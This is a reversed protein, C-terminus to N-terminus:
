LQYSVYVEVPARENGMKCQWLPIRQTDKIEFVEFLSKDKKLYQPPTVHAVFKGNESFYDKETPWGWSDAYTVKVLATVVFLLVLIKKMAQAREAKAEEM